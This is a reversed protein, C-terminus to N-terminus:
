RAVWDIEYNLTADKLEMVLAWTGQTPTMDGTDGSVQGGSGNVILRETGDPDRLTWKISGSKVNARVQLRGKKASESVPLKIEKTQTASSVNGNLKLVQSAYAQFGM